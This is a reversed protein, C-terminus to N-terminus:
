VIVGVLVPNVKLGEDCATFTLPAFRLLTLKVLVAWVQLREPVTLGEEAAVPVVIVNLPM